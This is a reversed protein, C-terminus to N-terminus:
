SCADGSSGMTLMCRELIGSKVARGVRREVGQPNPITPVKGTRRLVPSNCLWLLICILCSQTHRGLSCLFPAPAGMPVWNAGTWLPVQGPNNM